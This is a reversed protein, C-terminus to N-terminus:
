RGCSMRRRGCRVTSILMLARRPIVCGRTSVRGPRSYRWRLRWRVASGHPCSRDASNESPRRSLRPRPLRGRPCAQCTIGILDPAESLHDAYVLKGMDRQECGLALAYHAARFPGPRWPKAATSAISLYRSGDPMEALQTLLRGPQQFAHHLNWVPCTGGFRAFNLSNATFRKSINGATDVRILFFPVGEAGPRQLTTLRHMVQELSVGFRARLVALDYRAGTAAKLFREYPMLIAGALYSVLGARLLAAAQDDPADARAIIADLEAGCELIGIQAALQFARSAPPLMESLLVRHRHLDHRRITSGMVDVPILQVQLRHARELHRALSSYMAQPDLDGRQWVAAAAEELEPFHNLQQQFFTHVAEEPMPRAVEGGAEMAVRGKRYAGYLTIMAEAVAPSVTVFDRLDQKGLDMGAFIADGLVEDLGSVLPAEDDEAFRQLDIGFNQVLRLLLATTVPRQNHELLNLYSPSIGLQEAMQLQTLGSSRRLRRIKHGLM